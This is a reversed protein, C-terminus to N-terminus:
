IIIAPRIIISSRCHNHNSNSGIIIISLTFSRDLKGSEFKAKATKAYSQRRPTEGRVRWRERDSKIAAWEAIAEISDLLKVHAVRFVVLAQMHGRLAKIEIEAHM